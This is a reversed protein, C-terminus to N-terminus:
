VSRKTKPPYNRLRLAENELDYPICNPWDAIRSRYLFHNRLIEFRLTKDNSSLDM